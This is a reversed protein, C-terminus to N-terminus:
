SRRRVIGRRTMQKTRQKRAIVELRADVAEGMMRLDVPGAKTLFGVALDKVTMVQEEKKPEEEGLTKLVALISNRASQILAKAARPLDMGHADQLDDAADRLSKENAKSLVRGQKEGEIIEGKGEKMEEPMKAGCDQCVGDKINTSGCKPCKIEKDGAEGEGEKKTGDGDAEKSTGTEDKKGDGGAGEGTGSEDEDNEEKTGILGADAATKLDQLSGCALERTYDGLRERYKISVSTPRGERISKGVAKMVPSTLKGGEVLSLLVEETQADINAPVSVLSEEMIEAKYIEFGGTEKGTKHDKRKEHEISRFGHSFRGMGNDIMVAADHSTKNIDVVASVVRVAKTSQDITVLYKGIPMTHVHQWLLLMKPDIEMGDSHLIDRDRDERSTTLKHRFVMLTNKPLEIEGAVAKFGSASATKEEVVMEPNSYVLTRMSKKLVDDFSTQGTSACHYCTVLGAREAMTRVYVDATAIGYGFQTRRKQRSRIAKLLDIPMAKSWQSHCVAARQKEDGYEEVMVPDAM